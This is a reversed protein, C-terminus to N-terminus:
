PTGPYLALPAPCPTCPYPCPVASYPCLQPSPWLTTTRVGPTPPVSPAAAPTPLPQLSPPAPLGSPAVCPFVKPLQSSLSSAPPTAQWHPPRPIASSETYTMGIEERGQQASTGQYFGDVIPQQPDEAPTPALCLASPADAPPADASPSLLSLPM